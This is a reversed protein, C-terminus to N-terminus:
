KEGEFAARKDRCTACGKRACLDFKAGIVGPFFEQQHGDGFQVTVRGTSAAHRPPTMHTIKVRADGVKARDGVRITRGTEEDRLTHNASVVKPHGKQRLLHREWAIEEAAHKAAAQNNTVAQMRQGVPRENDWLRYGQPKTSGWFLPEIEFTGCKSLVFGEESRGWKVMAGRTAM